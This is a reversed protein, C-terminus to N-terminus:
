RTVAIAIAPLGLLSIAELGVDGAQGLEAIGLALADELDAHPKTRVVLAKGLM